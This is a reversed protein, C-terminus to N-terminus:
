NDRLEILELTTGNQTAELQEDWPGKASYVGTFLAEYDDGNSKLITAIPQLAATAAGLLEDAVTKSPSAIFGKIVKALSNNKTLDEHVKAM